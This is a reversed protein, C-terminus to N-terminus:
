SASDEATPKASDASNPKSYGYKIAQQIMAEAEPSLKHEVEGKGLNREFLGADFMKDFLAISTARIEKIAAVKVKSDTGLDGIIAWLMKKLEKAEQELEGLVSNVLYHNLRQGRNKRIKRVLRTLYDRHLSLPETRHAELTKQIQRVSVGPARVIVERVRELYESEKDATVKPM